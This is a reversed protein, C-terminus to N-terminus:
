SGTSANRTYPASQVARGLSRVPTSRPSGKAASFPLTTSDSRNSMRDEVQLLYLHLHPECPVGVSKLVDDAEVSVPEPQRLNSAELIVVAVVPDEQRHWACVSVELERATSVEVCRRWMRLRQENEVEAASVGEVLCALTDTSPRDLRCVWIPFSGAYREDVGVTKLDDEDCSGPCQTLSALAAAQTANTLRCLPRLLRGSLM